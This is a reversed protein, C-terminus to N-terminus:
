AGQVACERLKSLFRELVEGRAVQSTAGAARSHKFDEGDVHLRFAVIPVDPNRERLRRIHGMAYIANLGVVILEAKGTAGPRLLRAGNNCWTVERNSRTLLNETWLLLEMTRPCIREGNLFPQTM